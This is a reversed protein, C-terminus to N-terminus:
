SFFIDDLLKDRDTPRESDKGGGMSSFEQGMSGANREESNVIEESIKYGSGDKLHSSELTSALSVHKGKSASKSSLKTRDTGNGTTLSEFQPVTTIHESNCSDSSYDEFDLTPQRLLESLSRIKEDQKRNIDDNHKTTKSPTQKCINLGKRSNNNGISVVENHKAQHCERDNLNANSEVPKGNYNVYGTSQDENIHCDSDVEQQQGGNDASSETDDYCLSKKNDRVPTRNSKVM